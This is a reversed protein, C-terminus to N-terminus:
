WIKKLVAVAEEPTNVIHVLSLLDGYSFGRDMVDRLLYLMSAFQEIDVLIVPTERPMQGVAKRSLVDLVEFATGLGGPLAIYADAMDVLRKQRDALAIHEDSTHYAHHVPTFKPNQPDLFVCHVKGNANFAGECVAQMMGPGGGNACVYGAKALREGLSRATQLHQEAKPGKPSSGCFVTVIRQM